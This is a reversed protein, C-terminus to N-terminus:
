RSHRSVERASDLFAQITPTTDTKRWVLSTAMDIRSDSLPRYVVGPHGLRQM